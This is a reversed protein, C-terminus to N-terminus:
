VFWNAQISILGSISTGALARDLFLIQSSTGSGFSASSLATLGSPLGLGTFTASVVGVQSGASVDPQFGDPVSLLPMPITEFGTGTVYFNANLTVHAGHRTLRTAATSSTPSVVIIPTVEGVEAIEAPAALRSAVVLGGKVVSSAADHQVTGMWPDSM